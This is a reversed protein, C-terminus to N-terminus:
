GGGAGVRSGSGASRRRVQLASELDYRAQRVRHGAHPLPDLRSRHDAAGAGGPARGGAARGLAALARVLHPDPEAARVHGPGGRLPDLERDPRPHAPRHLQLGARDGRGPGSAGAAAEAPGRWGRRHVGERLPGAGARGTLERLHETLLEAEHANLSADEHDHWWQPYRAKIEAPFLGSFIANRAFPTATPLISFYHATEIDFRASILPRIMAWQDLRLCDVVVLMARGHMDLVPRLFEAGIDVSLPPRDSNARTCGAPTTGSSIAPSTRGCATRCRGCRMRCGPSTRRAWGSRGSRWSWSWSSGSGGRRTARWAPSRARPLPHCLRALAAAPPDPRGGAAPHGRVPDPPSEGAQHPLRLDGRRHRGEADRAGREQHGHGGAHRPRHGPHGSLPRARPAGADARGAARRRLAPAPASGPRRRRPHTTEVAFGQEELFLIHSTLSEVEDDVWLISKPRPM